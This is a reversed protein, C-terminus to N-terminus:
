LTIVVITLAHDISKDLYEVPEFLRWSELVPLKKGKEGFFYAESADVAIM